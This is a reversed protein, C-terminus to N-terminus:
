HLERSKGFRRPVDYEFTEVQFRAYTYKGKDLLWSAKIETPIIVGDVKRYENVEGIWGKLTNKDMYRDTELRTIQGQENFHVIYYVSQGHWTFTINATQEDIASWQKHEDLLLNTPM